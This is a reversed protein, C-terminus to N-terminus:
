VYDLWAFDGGVDSYRRWSPQAMKKYVLYLLVAVGFLAPVIAALWYLHERLYAYADMSFEIVHMACWKYLTVIAATLIGTVAGYYFVPLVLNLLYHKIKKM